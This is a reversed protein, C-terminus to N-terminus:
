AIVLARRHRHERALFRSWVAPEARVRGVGHVRNDHRHQQHVRFDRVDGRIGVNGAFGLVGFGIDGGGRTQNATTQLSTAVSAVYLMNSRLQVGGFGASVNATDGGRHRAATRCDREAHGRKVNPRDALFADTINFSPAFDALFEGGVIGRYLYGVQGGFDISSSTARAGYITGVFGAATWRSQTASLWGSGSNDDSKTSTTTPNQPPTQSTAGRNLNRRHRDLIRRM